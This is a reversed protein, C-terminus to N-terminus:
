EAANAEPMAPQLAAPIYTGGVVNPQRDPEVELKKAHLGAFNSDDGVDTMSPMSEPVELTGRRGRVDTRCVVKWGPRKTDNSLFVQQCHLPFAFSDAHVKGDMRNFNAVIFGYEDKKINPYRDDNSVRVWDCVLITTCHNRYDLELIEEIYVVYDKTVEIPRGNRVGWRIQETFSTVVASDCTVRSGEASHVRLHMGYAYMQRHAIAHRQPPTGYQVIDLDVHEGADQVARLEARM